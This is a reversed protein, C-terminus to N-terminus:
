HFALDGRFFNEQHKSEGRTPQVFGPGARVRDLISNISLFPGNARSSNDEVLLYM